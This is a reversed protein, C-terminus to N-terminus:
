YIYTYSEVNIKYIYIYIYIYTNVYLVTVIYGHIIVHLKSRTNENCTNKFTYPDEGMRPLYM